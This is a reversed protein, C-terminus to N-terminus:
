AAESDKMADAEGESTFRVILASRAGRALASEYAESRFEESTEPRCVIAVLDPHVHEDPWDSLSDAVAVVKDYTHTLAGMVIQLRQLPPNVGMAGVPISHVRSAEDRRIVEGFAAEGGLLDGLGPREQGGLSQSPRAGLDMVVLRLNEKAAQRAAAFAIEGAGEGGEAGAFLVIRVADSAIIEGLEATGPRDSDPGGEAAAVGAAGIAAAAPVVAADGEAQPSVEEDAGPSADRDLAAIEPEAPAVPDPMAASMQDAEAVTAVAPSALPATLGRDSRPEVPPAAVYSAPPVVGAATMPAGPGPIEGYGIIRFARGSAFERMLVVAAALLLTAIAAAVSMMLRKPYSPARPPVAISIVRADAPLYGAETRAAAERYRALFSELLERQAAAERELARLEIEQDNSESVAVKAEDLSAMLSQERAAAVRAATNLAALIRDIEQRIQAELNGLQGQLSRIRPHGPLYTTSLEAIEARLAVQRERLRQILQSDIVEQSTELSGGAGLQSQILQARAEAEARAARARALEANLESLQQTSLNASTGGVGPRNVDFLENGARYNSVAQEAEAVNERLREIEQELWATAAVASERKADQQLDVFARAIANAVEAALEPKPASFEVAIVRSKQVPYVTLREFYSDMVRQRISAETPTSQLGLMVKLSSVLSPRTAPDFDPRRTLNLDDIVADAIERSRLVEVHSQIASEDFDSASNVQPDRSRTFPSEREEILISTDATYLPEVRGLAYYTAGAAAAALLIFLWAKRWLARALAGMDLETEGIQPM